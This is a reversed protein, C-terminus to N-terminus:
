IIQIKKQSKIRLNILYRIHKAKNLKHINNKKILKIVKLIWVKNLEKVLKVGLVQSKIKNIYHYLKIMPKIKNM